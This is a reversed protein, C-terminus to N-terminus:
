LSNIANLDTQSTFGTIIFASIILNESPFQRLDRGHYRAVCSKSELCIKVTLFIEWLSASGLLVQQMVARQM